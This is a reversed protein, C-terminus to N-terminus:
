DIVDGLIELVHFAGVVGPGREVPRRDDACPSQRWRRIWCGQSSVHRASAVGSQLSIASNDVQEGAGGGVDGEANASGRGGAVDVNAGVVDEWPEHSFKSETM